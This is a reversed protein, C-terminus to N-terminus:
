AEAAFFRERGDGCHLLNLEQLAAEVEEETGCERAEFGEFHPVPREGQKVDGPRRNALVKSKREKCKKGQADM